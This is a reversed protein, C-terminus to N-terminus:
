LPPYHIIHYYGTSVLSTQLHRIGAGKAAGSMVMPVMLPYALYVITKAYRQEPCFNNQNVNACLAIRRTQKGYTSTSDSSVNASTDRLLTDKM